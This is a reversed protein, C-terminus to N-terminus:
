QGSSGFGNRGRGTLQGLMRNTDAFGPITVPKTVVYALPVIVLQAIRDGAEWQYPRESHNVLFVSIEGQYGADIVGTGQTIGISYNMALGSRGCVLGVTGPDLNVTVGTEVVAPKGFSVTGGHLARLDFGADAEHVRTPIPVGAEIAADSLEFLPM